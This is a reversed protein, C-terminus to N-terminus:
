EKIISKFLEIFELVILKKNQERSQNKATIVKTYYEGNIRDYISLYITSDDGFHNSPDPSNIKGTVGVGYDSNTFESIKLSMDCATDLSYVSHNDIIEKSVGMKIKFENSYTVAGFKFVLSSGSINTISSALFGGSASEMTSITKQNENLYKIIYEM